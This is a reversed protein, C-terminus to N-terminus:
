FKRFDSRFIVSSRFVSMRLNFQPFVIMINRAQTFIERFDSTAVSFVM